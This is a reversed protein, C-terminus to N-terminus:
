WSIANELLYINKLILFFFLFFSTFSPFIYSFVKKKESDGRLACPNCHPSSALESVIVFPMQCPKEFCYFSRKTQQAM